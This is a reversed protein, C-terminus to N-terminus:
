KRCCQGNVYQYGTNCRICSLNQYEDYGLTQNDFRCYYCRMPASMSDYPHLEGRRCRMCFEIGDLYGKYTYGSPCKGDQDPRVTQPDEVQPMNYDSPRATYCYSFLTDMQSVSSSPFLLIVLLSIAAILCLYKNM